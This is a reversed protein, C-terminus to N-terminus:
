PNAAIENSVQEGLAIDDEITFINISTDDKSCSNLVVIFLCSIFALYLKKM